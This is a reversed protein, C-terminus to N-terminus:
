AHFGFSALYAPALGAFAIRRIHAFCAVFVEAAFSATEAATGMPGAPQAHLEPRTPFWAKTQEFHVPSYANPFVNILSVVLEVGLGPPLHFKLGRIRYSDVLETCEEDSRDTLAGTM